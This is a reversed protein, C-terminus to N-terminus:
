KRRDSRGCPELQQVRRRRGSSFSGPQIVRRCRKEWVEARVFRSTASRRSSGGSMWTELADGVPVAASDRLCYLEVEFWTGNQAELAEGRHRSHAWPLSPRPLVRYRGDLIM